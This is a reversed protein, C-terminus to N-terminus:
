TAARPIFMIFIFAEYVDFTVKVSLLSRQIVLGSFYVTADGLDGTLKFIKLLLQIILDGFLQQHQFLMAKIVTVCRPCIFTLRECTDLFDGFVDLGYLVLVNLVDPMIDDGQATSDPM